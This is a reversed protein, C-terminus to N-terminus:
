KGITCEMRLGKPEVSRQVCQCVVRNQLFIYMYQKNSTWVEGVYPASAFTFYALHTHPVWSTNCKTESPISVTLLSSSGGVLRDLMERGSGRPKSTVSSQECPKPLVWRLTSLFFFDSQARYLCTLCENCLWLFMSCYTQIIIQKTSERRSLNKLDEFGMCLLTHLSHQGAHFTFYPWCPMLGIM